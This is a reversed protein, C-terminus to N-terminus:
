KIAEGGTEDETKSVVLKKSDDYYKSAASYNSFHFLEKDKSCDEYVDETKIENM